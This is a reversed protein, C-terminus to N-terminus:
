PLAGGLGLIPQPMRQQLSVSSGAPSRDRRCMARWVSHLGGQGQEATKETSGHNWAGGEAVRLCARHKACLLHATFILSSHLFSCLLFSHTQSYHFYFTSSHWENEYKIEPLSLCGDGEVQPPCDPAPWPDMRLPELGLEAASPGHEGACRPVWSHPGPSQVMSLSAGQEKM